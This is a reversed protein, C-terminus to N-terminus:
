QALGGPCLIGKSEGQYQTGINGVGKKIAKGTDKILKTGEGGTWKGGDEIGGDEKLANPDIIKPTDNKYPIPKIGVPNLTEVKISRWSQTGSTGKTGSTGPTKTGGPTPNPNIPPLGDEKRKKVLAEWQANPMQPESKPKTGQTGKVNYGRSYTTTGDDNKTSTTEGFVANEPIKEGSIADVNRRAQQVPSSCFSTPIGRGTKQFPSRGANMKFPTSM